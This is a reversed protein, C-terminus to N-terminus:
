TAKVRRHPKLLVLLVSALFKQAGGLQLTKPSSQAKGLGFPQGPIHIFLVGRLVQRLAVAARHETGMRHSRHAQEEECAAAEALDKVESPLLDVDFAAHEM